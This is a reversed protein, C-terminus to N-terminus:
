VGNELLLLTADRVCIHCIYTEPGAILKLPESHQRDCFACKLDAHSWHHHAQDQRIGERVEEFLAALETKTRPSSRGPVMETVEFHDLTSFASNKPDKAAILKQAQLDDLLMELCIEICENCIREDRGLLGVVAPVQSSNKGCFSCQGAPAILMRM